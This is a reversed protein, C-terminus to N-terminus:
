SLHCSFQFNRLISYIESRTGIDFGRTAEDFIFVHTDAALWKGLVVKQQNGGSLYKVLNRSSPVKISLANIAKEMIKEEQNWRIFGFPAKKRLGPLVLNLRIPLTLILGEAARDGPVYGLGFNVAHSPHSFNIIEGRFRMKTEKCGAWLGAGFLTKLLAQHGQGELGAIGLIEGECIFIQSAMAHPSEVVGNMRLPLTISTTIHLSTSGPTTLRIPPTRNHM